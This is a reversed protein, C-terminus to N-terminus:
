AGPRPHQRHSVGQVLADRNVAGPFQEIGQRTRRSPAQHHRRSRLRPVARDRAQTCRLVGPDTGEGLQVIGPVDMAVDLGPECLARWRGLMQDPLKFTSRFEAGGCGAWQQQGEVAHQGLLFRILLQRSAAPFEVSGDDVQQQGSAPRRRLVDVRVFAARDQLLPGPLGDLVRDSRRPQAHPGLCDRRVTPRGVRRLGHFTGEVIDCGFLLIGEGVEVVACLDLAPEQM